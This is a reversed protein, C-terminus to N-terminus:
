ATGVHGVPPPSLSCRQRSDGAVSARDIGCQRQAGPQLTTDRQPLRVQMDEMMRLRLSTM